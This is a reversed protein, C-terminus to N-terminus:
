LKEKGRPDDAKNVYTIQFPGTGHIQVITPEKTFAYHVSKAPMLAFGGNKLNTAANMDLKEGMGMYLDGEIVTVHEATPHWHPSIKYNAPFMLRMTFPGEKSPDGALVAMKAGAPLGAPGDSWKVQEKTIIKHGAHDQAQMKSHDQGYSQLTFGLVFLLCALLKSLSKM